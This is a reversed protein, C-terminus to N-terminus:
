IFYNFIILLLAIAGIVFFVNKFNVKKLLKGLYFSLKEKGLKKLVFNIVFWLVILAIVFPAIMILWVISDQLFEVFNTWSEGFTDKLREGFGYKEVSYKNVERLSIYIPSYKVDYDISDNQNNLRKLEYRVMALRDEIELIESVNNAQSLLENLRTEQIKLTEIKSANDNYTKTMDSSNVSSSTVHVSDINALESLLKDFDTVPVRISLDLVRGKIGSTRYSTTYWYDDYDRENKNDIIIEFKNLINNLSNVSEDYNKSELHMNASYIIKNGVFSNEEENYMEEDVFNAEVVSEQKYDYAAGGALSYSDTTMTANKSCGTLVLLVALIPLIKKM